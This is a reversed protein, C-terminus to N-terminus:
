FAVYFVTGLGAYTLLKSFIALKMYNMPLNLNNMKRFVLSNRGIIYLILTVFYLAALVSEKYVRYRLALVYGGIIIVLPILGYSRFGSLADDLRSREEANLSKKAREDVIQAVIITVIFIMIGVEYTM